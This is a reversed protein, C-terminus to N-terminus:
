QLKINGFFEPRHYDPTVTEIKNWTLFHPHSLKDGCKHFNGRLEMVCFNKIAHCFFTDVPIAVFLEWEFNGEKEAFPHFGMSPIRIIKRIINDGPRRREFRSKGYELLCTGIANFEFNYYGNDDPTIFFEVCSDTWVPGNDQTVKAMVYNEKVKYKLFLFNDNYAMKFSVEPTYSYVSWNITNIANETKDDVMKSFYDFDDKKHNQSEIKTVILDNMIM